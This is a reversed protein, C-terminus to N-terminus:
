DQPPWPAHELALSKDYFGVRRSEEAPLPRAHCDVDALTRYCYREAYVLRPAPEACGALLLLAAAAPMAKAGACWDGGTRRRSM